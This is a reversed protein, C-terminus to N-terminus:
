PNEGEDWQENRVEPNAPKMWQPQAQASQPSPPYAALNGAQDPTPTTTAQSPQPQRKRRNVVLFVVAAVGLLGALGLLWPLAGVFPNAEKSTAKLGEGAFLDAANTWTVTTGEVTSSGNHSTVEGPFTVAVKFSTFMMSSMGSSDEDTSTNKMWFTYQSNEHTITLGSDDKFGDKLPIQTAQITCGTFGDQQYQTITSGPPLDMGTGSTSSCAEAIMSAYQQQIAVLMTVDVKDNASIRIATDFKICGGLLFLLPVMLLAATRRRLSTTM